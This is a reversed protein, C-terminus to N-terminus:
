SGPKKAVVEGVTIQRMMGHDIHPKGDTADPLYCYVGYEGPPLDIIINADVGHSIPTMGGMPVVPPPGYPHVIFKPLDGVVKGPALRGIFIEHPQAATNRVRIVQKGATLPHSFTFGYDVLTVTVDARPLAAPQHPGTVTLPHVMGKVVHSVMAKTASDPSHVFCTILYHGPALDVTATAEAGPAPANPGGFYTIWSPWPGDGFGAHEIAATFEETTHGSDLRVITLHHLNPGHNQLRITTVGAPISDPADFTYDRAVITLERPTTPRPTPHWAIAAVAAIAIPLYRIPAIM